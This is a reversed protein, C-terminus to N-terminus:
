DGKGKRGRCDQVIVTVGKLEACVSTTLNSVAEATEKTRQESNDCVQRIVDQFIARDKQRTGQDSARQDRMESRFADLNAMTNREFTEREHQLQHVLIERDKDVQALMRPMLRKGIYWLILMLLAVPVGVTKAFELLLNLDM